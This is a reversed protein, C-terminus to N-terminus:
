RPAAVNSGPLVRRGTYPREGRILRAVSSKTTFVELEGLRHAVARYGYGLGYLRFCEAWAEPPISQPRGRKTAQRM